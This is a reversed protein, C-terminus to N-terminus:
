TVILDIIDDTGAQRWTTGETYWGGDSGCYVVGSSNVGLGGWGSSALINSHANTNPIWRRITSTSAATLVNYYVDGNPAIALGFLGRGYNAAPTPVTYAFNTLTAVTGVISYLQMNYNNSPVIALYVKDGRACICSHGYDNGNGAALARNFTMVSTKVGGLLRWVTSVTSSTEEIVYLAGDIPSWTISYFGWSNPAGSTRALATSQVGANSRFLIPGNGNIAYIGEGSKAIGRGYHKAASLNVFGFSTLASPPVLKQVQTPQCVFLENAVPLVIAPAAPWIKKDGVYVESMPTNGFNVGQLGDFVTM